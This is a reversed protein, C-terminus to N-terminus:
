KPSVISYELKCAQLDVRSSGVKPLAEHFAALQDMGADDSPITTPAHEEEGEGLSVHALNTGDGRPGYYKRILDLFERRILENVLAYFDRTSAPRLERFTGLLRIVTNQVVDDVDVFRGVRSYRTFTARVMREVRALIKKFVPEAAEPRGAQLEIVWLQLGRTSLSDEEGM